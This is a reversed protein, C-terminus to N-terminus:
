EFIVLIEGEKVAQDPAVTIKKIVGESEAIVENEMKMALLTLIKQGPKIAEGEKVFIESVIGGLTSKLEKSSLAKQTQGFDSVRMEKKAASTSGFSFSRNEVRINVTEDEQESISIDYIKEKIKIKFNM